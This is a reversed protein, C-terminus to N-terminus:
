FLPKVAPYLSLYKEFMRKYMPVVEKRPENTKSVRVARSAEDLDKYVGIGVGAALAVGLSTISNTNKEATFIDANFIDALIQLWFKSNAGGGIVRISTIDRGERYVELISCLAFSVGELVSRVFHSRKHLSSIHFFLGRAGADFIPSREGDIYPLFILGESGEPALAAEEDFSVNNDINFLQQAWEVSKGAAQMTGFIGFSEGDLSMIDFVRSKGDIVPGASSYAVWATTGISCYTEGRKTSIGAGVNACAGDGGGAIVPIGAAINLERASFETTKGAIDTGKFIDPFKNIDLSLDAFVDTLYTKKHIDIVQSHSADSFDTININGTLKSILYDKSQLFRATKKYIDPENRKLWLIKSLPSQASLICGTRRYFSDRGVLRAIDETEPGARTDAHIMAPRLPSGKCDVPLCGLMHGCVGLVAIEHNANPNREFLNKCTIRAGEWWSEPDQEAQCLNNAILGYAYSDSDVLQGSFSVLSTKIASTGIDFALIYM